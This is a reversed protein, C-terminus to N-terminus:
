SIERRLSTRLRPSRWDDPTTKEIAVTCSRGDIELRGVQNDFTPDQVFEWELSTPSVGARRALFRAIATGTRSLAAKMLHREKADLPNRMPSCVAQVIASRVGEGPPFAAEAVYAHHVDGSLLVISAPHLGREGSAVSKIEELLRDFSGRFAPWHELDVAQRVKEAIRAAGPGWAGACVAENWGELHHLGQSMLIPVSSAILLHDIDGTMQRSVWQWQEDSLMQRNEDDGIIRGARSDLVILRAPGFDRRFSWRTGAVEDATMEAFRRLVEEGDGDLDRLEAFTPDSRIEAPTLNGLHQYLWYSMYAGILRERWWPKEKQRTVWTGSINWDDTVDHDDFIMMTPVSAFLWRTAPDAWSEEYLWSYEEFDAIEEGAGTTTDRRSRIRERVGPSVEDAYVQDGLLLLCDPWDEVPSSEMKRSLAVLSDVERGDEHRDKSYVFPPEHPLAVRCSGFALNLGGDEELTRIVGEPDGPAPWVRSGDLELCYHHSQGPELGTLILIAYHHGAIEFTRTSRGLVEVRCPQDTEVWITAESGQAYRLMPGVVLRPKVM